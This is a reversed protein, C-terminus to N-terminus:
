SRYANADGFQEDCLDCTGDDHLFDGHIPCCPWAAEEEPSLEPAAPRPQKWQAMTRKMAQRQEPTLTM